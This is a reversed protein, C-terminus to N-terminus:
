YHRIFRSSSLSYIGAQQSNYDQSPMGPRVRACTKNSSLMLSPSFGTEDTTEATRHDKMSDREKSTSRLIPPLKRRFSFISELGIAFLYQSPFTFLVKFLSNFTGSIALFSAFSVLKKSCSQWSIDLDASTESRTALTTSPSEWPTEQLKNDIHITHEPFDARHMLTRQQTRSAQTLAKAAIWSLTRNNFIKAFTSYSKQLAAWRTKLFISWIWSM